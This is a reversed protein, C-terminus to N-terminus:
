RDASSGAAARFAQQARAAVADALERTEAMGATCRGPTQPRPRVGLYRLDGAPGPHGAAAAAAGGTRAGPEPASCCSRLRGCGRAPGPEPGTWWCWPLSPRRSWTPSCSTPISSRRPCATQATSARWRSVSTTSSRGNPQRSVTQRKRSCGRRPVSRMPQHGEALHHWAGGPRGLGTVPLTHLRGLLAGLRVFGGLRRITEARQSVPEAAALRESRYSHGALYELIAADATAAAAPRGAPFLRTVWDPGGAHAVRYVGADLETLGSIPGGYSTELHSRLQGATAAGGHDGTM